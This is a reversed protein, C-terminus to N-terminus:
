QKRVVCTCLSEVVRVDYGDTKGDVFFVERIAKEVGACPTHAWDDVFLKGGKVMRPWFFEIADKTAQYTDMDVYVFCFRQENDLCNKVSEPFVGMHYYTLDDNGILTNCEDFSAIWEGKKHHCLPDDYPTGQWTDFLHLQKDLALRKLILATGGRCSGLDAVDGSLHSVSIFEEAMLRLKEPPNVSYPVGMRVASLINVRHISDNIKTTSPEDKADGTCTIVM